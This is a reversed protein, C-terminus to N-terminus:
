FLAFVELLGLPLAVGWLAVKCLDNQLCLWRM